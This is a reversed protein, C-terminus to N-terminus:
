VTEMQNRWHNLIDSLTQELPIAPTWGLKKLRTPDGIRVPEDIPRIKSPDEWETVPANSLGKYIDLIKRLAYGTGSCLNYVDGPKGREAM